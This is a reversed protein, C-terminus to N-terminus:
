TQSDSPQLMYIEGQSNSAPGNQKSYFTVM